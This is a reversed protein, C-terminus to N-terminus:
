RLRGKLSSSSAVNETVKNWVSVFETLWASEVRAFEAVDTAAPGPQAGFFEAMQLRPGPNEFQRLARSVVASSRQPRAFPDDAGCCTVFVEGFASAGFSPNSNDANLCTSAAPGAPDPFTAPNSWVCLQPDFNAALQGGTMTTTDYFLCLDTDLMIDPRNTKAGIDFRRWLNKDPNGGIEQEAVWGAMMTKYYENSFKAMNAGTTWAGDYGLDQPSARGLTHVGMLAANERWSSLGLRDMFTDEVTSCGDEANPLAHVGKCSDATRRGFRFKNKFNLTPSTKTGANYDPRTRVMVSEAAIVLFDAFSVKDCWKAYATALVAGNGGEGGGAMCGMLGTNDPDGFDLCGDAGHQNKDFDMFDHGALRVVCGAFDGTPCGIPGSVDCVPILKDFVAIVDSKVGDYTAGNFSTSVAVANKPCAKSMTDM